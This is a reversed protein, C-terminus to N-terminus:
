FGQLSGLYETAKTGFETLRSPTSMNLELHLIKRGEVRTRFLLPLLYYKVDRTSCYVCLRSEESSYDFFSHVTAGVGALHPFQREQQKPIQFWITKAKDKEIGGNSKGTTNTQEHILFM